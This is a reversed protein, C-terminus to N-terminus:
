KLAITSSTRSRLFLVTQLRMQTKHLIFSTEHHTKLGEFGKKYNFYKNYRTNSGNKIIPDATMMQLLTTSHDTIDTKVIFPLIVDSIGSKGSRVTNHDLFSIVRTPNIIAYLYQSGRRM